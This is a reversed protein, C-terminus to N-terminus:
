STRSGNSPTPAAYRELRRAASTLQCDGPQHSHAAGWLRPLLSRVTEAPVAPRPHSCVWVEGNLSRGILEADSAM